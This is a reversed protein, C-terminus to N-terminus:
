AVTRWPSGIGPPIAPQPNRCSMVTCRRATAGAWSVNALDQSVPIDRRSAGDGEICYLGAPASREEYQGRCCAVLEEDTLDEWGQPREKLWREVIEAYYDDWSGTYHMTAVPHYVCVTDGATFIRVENGHGPLWGPLIAFRPHLRCM